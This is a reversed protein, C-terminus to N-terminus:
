KEHIFKHACALFLLRRTRIARLRVTAFVCLLLRGQCEFVASSRSFILRGEVSRSFRSKFKVSFNAKAGTKGKAELRVNHQDISFDTSGSFYFLILFFCVCFPRIYPLGELRVAYHITHSTPNSLEITSVVEDHM